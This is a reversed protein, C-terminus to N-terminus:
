LKNLVDEDSMNEIDEEDPINRCNYYCTCKTDPKNSCMWQLINCNM